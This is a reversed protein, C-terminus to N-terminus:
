NEANKFLGVMKNWGAGALGALRTKSTLGYQAFYQVLSVTYVRKKNVNM